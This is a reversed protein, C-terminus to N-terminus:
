TLGRGRSSAPRVRAADEHTVGPYLLRVLTVALLGGLVEAGVFSPM